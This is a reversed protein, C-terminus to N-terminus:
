DIERLKPSDIAGSKADLRGEKRLRMRYRVELAGGSMQRRQTAGDQAFGLFEYFRHSRPTEALTWLTAESFGGGALRELAHAMLASGAGQRWTAPDVNLAYVEGVDPGAGDDRSAGFSVWGCLEGDLEAVAVPKSPEDVRRGVREAMEERDPVDPPVVGKFGERWARMGVEVIAELDNPRAPRVRVSV